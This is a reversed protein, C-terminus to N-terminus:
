VPLFANFLRTGSDLKARTSMFGVARLVGKM